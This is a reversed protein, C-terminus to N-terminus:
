CTRQLLSSVATIEAQVQPFLLHLCQVCHVNTRSSSNSLPLPKPKPCPQNLTGPAPGICCDCGPHIFQQMHQCGMVPARGVGVRVLQLLVSLLYWCSLIPSGGRPPSTPTAERREIIVLPQADQYGQSALGRIDPIIRSSSGM